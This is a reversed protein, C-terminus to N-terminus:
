GVLSELTTRLKRQVYWLDIKRLVRKAEASDLFIDGEQVETVQRTLSTDAKISSLLIADKAPRDGHDGPM